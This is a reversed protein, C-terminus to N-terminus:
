SLHSPKPGPRKLGPGKLGPGKLGPGKLAIVARLGPLAALAGLAIISRRM